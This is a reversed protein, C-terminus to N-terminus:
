SKLGNGQEKNALADRRHETQITPDDALASLYRAGLQPNRNAVAKALVLRDASSAKDASSLVLDDMGPPFAMTDATEAFAIAVSRRTKTPASHDDIFYLALLRAWTGHRLAHTLWNWDNKPLLRRAEAYGADHCFAVLDVAARRRLEAPVTKLGAVYCLAVINDSRTGTGTTPLLRVGQPVVDGNNLNQMTQILWAGASAAARGNIGCADISTARKSPPATLDAITALAQALWGPPIRAGAPTTCDPLDGHSM